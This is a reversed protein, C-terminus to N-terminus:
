AGVGMLSGNFPQIPTVLHLGTITNSGGVDNWGMSLSVAGSKYSVSLSNIGAAGLSAARTLIVQPGNISFGTTLPANSLLCADVGMGDFASVVSDSMSSVSSYSSNVSTGTPSSQHTKNWCSVVVYAGDNPSTIGSITGSLTVVIDHTGTLGVGKWVQLYNIDTIGNLSISLPSFSLESWGTSSGNFTISAVKLDSTIQAGNYMGSHVLILDAGSTNVNSITVSTPDHNPDISGTYLSAEGGRVFTVGM